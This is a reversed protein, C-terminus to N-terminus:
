TIFFEPVSSILQGCRKKILYNMVKSAPATPEKLQRLIETKYETPMANQELLDIMAMNRGFRVSASSSLKDLEAPLTGTKYADWLLDVKKATMPTQRAGETLFVNDDSLINPVGDGGCGRLIQEFAYKMPNSEKVLKKIAPSFQAVNDYKHLQIFDHDSSIIMVDDHNGFEQTERVVTAIVDDAETGPVHIVKWPLNEKIESRVLHLVRFFEDWDVANKDANIQAEKSDRRKQKYQAYIDRRWNAGGDCCVVMQGYEKRYKVNHMRLSNLILHRILTEDIKATSQSFM